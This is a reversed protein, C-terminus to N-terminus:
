GAVSERAEAIIKVRDAPALAALADRAPRQALAAKEVDAFPRELMRAEADAAAGATLDALM